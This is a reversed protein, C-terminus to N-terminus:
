VQALQQILTRGSINGRFTTASTSAPKIGIEGLNGSKGTPFTFHNTTNTMKAIPGNIHSADSGGSVYASSGFVGSSENLTLLNTNTTNIIGNTLILANSGGALLLDTGLTVQGSTSRNMTLRSLTRNGSTFRLTGADGTGNIILRSTNGGTITGTSSSIDGNLTLTNGNLTLTNNTKIDLNTNITADNALTVGGSLVPNQNIVVKTFPSIGSVTQKTPIPSPALTATSYSIFTITAANSASTLNTITGNNIIDGCVNLNRDANITLAGGADINVTRAVAGNANIIPYNPANAPIDVDDACTPLLGPCVGWNDSNFWNTSFGRWKFTNAPAFPVALVASCQYFEIDDIGIDNGSAASSINAIALDFTTLSGSNIQISYKAWSCNGTFGSIIDEGVRNCNIYMGFVLSNAPGALSIANFTLVYNTNPSLGSLTQSWVIRTNSADANAILMNNGSANCFANHYYNPDTGISYLGEPYLNNATYIYNTNFGVGSNGFSAPNSGYAIGTNSSIANSVLTLSTANAISAVTGILTNDARKILDGVKIQTNFSTGSGTVTTSATNTTITGTYLASNFNSKFKINTNSSSANGTLILTTNNTISAVTGLVSNDNRMIQDGVNVQETFRTNTGTVTTSATNTTITGVLPLNYYNTLYDKNAVSYKSNATLTLQTNSTISSITGLLSDPSSYLRRGVRLQTTFSTGTGTVTTSGTSASVKGTLTNDFKGNTIYNTPGTTCNIYIIVENTITNICSGISIQCVVYYTGPNGSAFHSGTPTYTQGTAGPIATFGSGSSTRYGWQFSTASSTKFSIAANTSAANSTLVLSNNNTISQVTGIVQNDSSRKLLKGVSIQSTFSTGVGTVVNSLTTTVITGTLASEATNATLMPGNGSPLMSQSLGPSVFYMSVGNNIGTQISLDTSIVRYRYNTGLYYAPILAQVTGSAATSKINTGGIILSGSNFNGNVDSLQVRFENGENFSATAATVTGPYTATYDVNLTYGATYCAMSATNITALPNIRLNKLSISGTGDDMVFKIQNITQSVDQFQLNNALRTTNHWLESLGTALNYSNGDPGTYNIPAGSNNIVWTFNQGLNLNDASTYPTGDPSTVSIKNNITTLNFQLRAAATPKLADDGLNSGLMLTGAGSTNQVTSNVGLQFQIVATNPVPSFLKNRFAYVSGQGNRVFTIDSATNTIINGADASAQYRDFKNVISSGTITGASTNNFARSTTSTPFVAPVATTNNIFKGNAEISASAIYIDTGSATLTGSTIYANTIEANTIITFASGTGTRNLTFNQLSRSASSTQNFRINGNVNKNDGNIIISSTSSGTFTGSSINSYNGNITLTRGNLNLGTTASSTNITFSGNVVPTASSGLTVLIAPGTGITLNNLATSSTPLEPGTNPQPSYTTAGTYTVNVRNNFTPAAFIASIDGRRIINTIANGDEGMTITNSNTIYGSLLSLTGGNYITVNGAPRLIGGNNIGGKNVTLNLLGNTIIPIDINVGSSGGIILSSTTGGMITGSGIFTSGNLSLTNSGISLAGATFTALGSVNLNQSLSVTPTAATNNITFNIVTGPIGNGTVQPATGNYTFSGSTLTRTGSVRISGVSTGSNIGDPSATIITGSLTFSSTGMVSSLGANLTGAVSTNGDVTADFGSLTLTAGTNITLANCVSVAAALSKIGGGSITLNAYDVGSMVVQNGTGNYNITSNCTGSNILNAISNSSAGINLIHALSGGSMDITGLGSMNGTLTLTRATTGDFKLTGDVNLPGGITQDKQLTVIGPMAVTTNSNFSLIGSGTINQNGSGGFTIINASSPNFTLTGTQVSLNGKINIGGTLNVTMTSVNVVSFNDVTLGNTGISTQTYGPANIEFNAYTRGAFSPEFSTQRHSYLSGTNFKIKSNPIAKAFPNAGSQQIYTSGSEFVVTENTGTSTFANGTSNQTFSSGNKFVIAGADNADLSHPSAASTNGSFIINGGIYATAGAALKINLGNTTNIELTSGAEVILDPGTGGGITLTNGSTNAQLIAYTNNKIRIQGVNQTPINTLTVTGGNKIILTDATNPSNRNPSWKNGTAWSNNGGQWDYTAQGYSSEILLLTLIISLLGIVPRKINRLDPMLTQYIQTM